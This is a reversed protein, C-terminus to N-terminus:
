PKLNQMHPTGIMKVYFWWISGKKVSWYQMQGSLLQACVQGLWLQHGVCLVTKSTKSLLFPLIDVASQEPNLIPEVQYSKSLFAATEQTRLAESTMFEYDKPLQKHLWAAMMQAQKQGERTLKRQLDNSGESAEAHRWLIFDMCDIKM